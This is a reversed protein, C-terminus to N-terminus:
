QNQKGERGSLLEPENLHFDRTKAIGMQKIYDM